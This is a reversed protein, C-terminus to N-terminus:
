AQPERKSELGELAQALAAVAEPSADDLFTIATRSSPEGDILRQFEIAIKAFRTIEDPDLIEGAAIRAQMSERAWGLADALFGAHLRGRERAADEASAISADHLHAELAARRAKWQWRAALTQVTPRELGRAEAFSAITRESSTLFRSFLDWAHDPEHAQRDWPARREHEPPAEAPERDPGYDM